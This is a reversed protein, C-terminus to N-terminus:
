KMLIVQRGKGQITSNHTITKLDEFLGKKNPSQMSM